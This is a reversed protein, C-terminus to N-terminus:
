VRDVTVKVGKMAFHLAKDVDVDMGTLRSFLALSQLYPTVWWAISTRLKLTIQM